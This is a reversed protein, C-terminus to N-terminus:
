VLDESWLPDCARGPASAKAVWERGAPSLALALAIGRRRSAVLGRPLGARAVAPPLWGRVRRLDGAAAGILHHLAGVSAMGAFGFDELIFCDHEADRRGTVYARIREGSRTVLAVPQPGAVRRERRARLWEWVAPTRTFAWPQYRALANHCAAVGKWDEEQLVGMESRVPELADTGFSITRSPLACFGLAEYFATGIDSFVFVFDRGAAREQDLVAALLMTAFGRGRLHPLTFLAGAGTARLTRDGWRLTRAYLKLSAAIGGGSELGILHKRQRGFRSQAVNEIDAVHEDFTRGAGWEAHSYPLVEREYDAASLIVTRIPLGARTLNM